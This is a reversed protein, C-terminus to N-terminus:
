TIVDLAESCLTSKGEIVGLWVEFTRDGLPLKEIGFPTPLGSFLVWDTSSFGGKPFTKSGTFLGIMLCFVVVIILVTLGGSSFVCDFLPGSVRTSISVM